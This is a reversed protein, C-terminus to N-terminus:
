FGHTVNGKQKRRNASRRRETVAFAIPVGAGAVAVGHTVGLPEVEDAKRSYCNRM